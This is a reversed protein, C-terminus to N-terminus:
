WAWDGDWSGSDSPPMSPLSSEDSLNAIDMFVGHPAHDVDKANDEAIKM